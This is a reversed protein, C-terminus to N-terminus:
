SRQWSQSPVVKPGVRRGSLVVRDESKRVTISVLSFARTYTRFIVGGGDGAVAVVRPIDYVSVTVVSNRHYSM